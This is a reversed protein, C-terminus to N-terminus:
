GSTPATSPRALRSPHPDQYDRPSARHRCHDEVHGCQPCQEIDIEFVRKLLRAWSMPAPAALPPVEADDASFTNVNVPVNPIIEPRLLKANPALVGHFRILHLRPRPVFGQENTPPPRRWAGPAAPPVFDVGSAPFPWSSKM